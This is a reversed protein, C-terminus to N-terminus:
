QWNMLGIVSEITVELLGSEKRMKEGEEITVKTSFKLALSISNMVVDLNAEPLTLAEHLLFAWWKLALFLSCLCRFIFSCYLM